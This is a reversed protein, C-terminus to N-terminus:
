AISGHPWIIGHNIENGVRVMDPANQENLSVMVSKTYDYVCKKRTGDMVSRTGAAPMYQKQPDAWTDSYHFDTGEDRRSQRTQGNTQHVGSRLLRKKPRTAVTAPPVNFIRLRIYQFRPNKLIEIADKASRRHGSNSIATELQLFSIDAGRMEDVKQARFPQV